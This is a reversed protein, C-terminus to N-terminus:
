AFKKELKDQLPYSFGYQRIGRRCALLQRVTEKDGFSLTTLVLRLMHCHKTISHKNTGDKKTWLHVSVSAIALIYALEGKELGNLRCLELTAPINERANVKERAKNLLEPQHKFLWLVQPWFSLTHSKGHKIKNLGRQVIKNGSVLKPDPYQSSCLQTLQWRYIEIGFINLKRALCNGTTPKIGVPKNNEKRGSKNVLMGLPSYVTGEYYPLGSIAEFVVEPEVLLAFPNNM